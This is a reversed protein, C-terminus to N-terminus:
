SLEIFKAFYFIDDSYAGQMTTLPTEIAVPALDLDLTAEYVLMAALEGILERFKKPETEKRRLLSLKHRVLPHPSAFVNESM